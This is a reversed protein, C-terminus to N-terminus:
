KLSQRIAKLLVKAERNGCITDTVREINGDVTRQAVGDADSFVWTANVGRAPQGNTTKETVFRRGLTIAGSEGRSSALLKGLQDYAAHIAADGEAPSLVATGLNDAITKGLDRVQTRVDIMSGAYAKLTDSSLPLDAVITAQGANQAVESAAPATATAKM